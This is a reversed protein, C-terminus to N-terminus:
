KKKAIARKAWKRENVSVGMLKSMAPTLEKRTIVGNKNTDYKAMFKALYEGPHKERLNFREETMDGIAANRANVERSMRNTMSTQSTQEPLHAQLFNLVLNVEQQNLAQDEGGYHHVLIFAFDAPDPTFARDVKEAMASIMLGSLLGVIIMLRKMINNRKEQLPNM